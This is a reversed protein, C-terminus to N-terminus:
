KIITKKGNQIYIGKKTPKQQLRRGNLDYWNDGRGDSMLGRVDEIGTTGNMDFIPIYQPAPAKGNHVTFAEFPRINRYNAVFVSGEPYDNYQKGVNLAYTQEDASQSQFCPVFSLMNDNVDHTEVVNIQTQPVEVNQSSFTVRGNLNSGVPYVENNPMSILYPTNAEIVTARALGQQTLQRLWFHKNITDAAFPTIQGNEHMITQVTFPLAITEWGRAVGPETAQHYEHTYSIMEATFM